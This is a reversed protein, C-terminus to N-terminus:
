IYFLICSCLWISIICHIVSRIFLVKRTQRYRKRSSEKQCEDKGRDAKMQKQGGLEM